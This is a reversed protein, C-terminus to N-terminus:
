SGTSTNSVAGLLHAAIRQAADPHAMRSCAAGMNRRKTEDELLPQLAQWLATSRETADAVDEVIVGAGAQVLKGANQYQHRDQHYPYPMCIAPVGAAAYEAVSVAGSRGILVDAAGLLHAMNHYYPLVLCPLPAHSYAARVDAENRHGALHVVQWTEAFAALRDLLGIVAQNIHQAGSSAGTVLLTHRRPDLRLETMVREPRPDQFDERLPCGVTHLRARYRDFAPGAEEFQLFIDRAWRAALRNAKGAVIDVNILAIPLGLRQATWCVPGAVFGGAGIVTPNPSQSLRQRTQRTSAWFRTIFHGWTLPHRSLGQAPLPTFPFPTDQLIRTDIPRTSCLFHIEAQPAQRRIQEAVALAPYLHGGTGGGAFFFSHSDTM